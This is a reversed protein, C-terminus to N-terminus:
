RPSPRTERRILRRARWWARLTHLGSAVGGLACGGRCYRPSRPDAASRRACRRALQRVSGPRREGDDVLGHRPGGSGGRDGAAGDCRRVPSRSLLSARRGKSCRWCVDHDGPLSPCTPSSPGSCGGVGVATLLVSLGGPGARFVNRAVVPLFASYPLALVGIGLAPLLVARIRPNRAVALTAKSGGNGATPQQRPHRARIALLAGIVALFSVANTGFCAAAGFAVLLWGGIAPGIIRALNFRASNLAVARRLQDPGVLEKIFSQWAPGGVANVM